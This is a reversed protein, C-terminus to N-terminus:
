FNIYKSLFYFKISYLSNIYPSYRSELCEITDTWSNYNLLIIYVKLYNMKRGKCFNEKFRRYIKPINEERDELHSYKYYKLINM